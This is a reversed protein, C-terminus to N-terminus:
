ETRGSFQKLKNIEDSLDLDKDHSEIERLSDFMKQIGNNIIQLIEPTFKLNTEIVSVCAKEVAECFLGINNYQMLLSQSKLSHSDIHVQDVAEKNQPDKLLTAISKQLSLIYDRATKLYLTKYQALEQNTPM